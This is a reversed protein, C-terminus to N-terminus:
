SDLEDPTHEGEESPVPPLVSEKQENQRKKREEEEQMFKLEAEQLLALNEALNEREEKTLSDNRIPEKRDRVLYKKKETRIEEKVGRRIAARRRLVKEKSKKEREKRKQGINKAM